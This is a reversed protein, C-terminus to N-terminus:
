QAGGQPWRQALPRLARLDVKAYIATTNLSKHRLLHAIEPFSAGQRLM